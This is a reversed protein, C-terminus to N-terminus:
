LVRKNESQKMEWLVTSVLLCKTSGCSCKGQPENLYCDAIRYCKWCCAKHDRACLGYEMFDACSFPSLFKALKWKKDM